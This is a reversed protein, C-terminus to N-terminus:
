ETCHFRGSVQEGQEEQHTGEAKPRLEAWAGAASETRSTRRSSAPASFPRALHLIGVPLEEGLIRVLVFSGSRLYTRNGAGDGVLVVDREFIGRDGHDVGFGLFHDGSANGVDFPFEVDFLERRAVVQDFDGKDAEAFVDARGEGEGGAVPGLVNAGDYQFFVDIQEIVYHHDGVYRGDFVM